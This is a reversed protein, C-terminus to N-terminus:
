CKFVAEFYHSRVYLYYIVCMSFVAYYLITGRMLPSTDKM